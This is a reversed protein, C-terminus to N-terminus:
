RSARASSTRRVLRRFEAEGILRINAGNKNLRELEKLKQGKYGKNYHPSRGGQVVVDTRKSIQRAVTGGAQLVMIEADLRKITLPGTFVVTKGRLSRVGGTHVEQGKLAQLMEYADAYRQARPGISKKIIAKLEEDCNLRSVQKLTVPASADGSLLFAFLQGMQFVDDVTLWHRHTFAAFGRTVFDPNFADAAVPKGALAHSAIGFDALKLVGGACVLINQPTIDRHTASGGHLEHLTKLLACIERRAREPTWPKQTQKLYNDLSGYQALEFVTVYHIGKAGGATTPLPFSDFLQIVRRNGRLLEGFYSERHWALQDRTVKLCVEAVPKQRPSLEMARYAEGFGGEGLSDVIQYRKRTIPSQLIRGKRLLGM